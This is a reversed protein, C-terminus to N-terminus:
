RGPNTTMAAVTAALASLVSRNRRGVRARGARVPHTAAHYAARRQIDAVFSLGHQWGRFRHPRRVRCGLAECAVVRSDAADGGM